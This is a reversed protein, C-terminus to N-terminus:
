DDIEGKAMVYGVNYLGALGFFMMISCLILNAEKGFSYSDIPECIYSYTVNEYATTNNIVGKEIYQSSIRNICMPSALFIVGLVVLGISGLLIFLARDELVGLIILVLPIVLVAM